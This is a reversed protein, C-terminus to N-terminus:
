PGLSGPFVTEVILSVVFLGGVVFGFGVISLLLSAPKGFYIAHRAINRAVKSRPRSPEPMAFQIVFLFALLAALPPLSRRFWDATEALNPYHELILESNTAAYAGIILMGSLLAVARTLWKQIQVRLGRGPTASNISISTNVAKSLQDLSFPLKRREAFTMVNQRFAEVYALVGLARMLSYNSGDRRLWIIQRVLAYNIQAKWDNNNYVDIIRDTSPSHFKHTHLLDRLFSYVQTALTQELNIFQGEIEPTPLRDILLEVEGNRSIRFRATSIAHPHVSNKLIDRNIATNDPALKINAQLTSVSNAVM